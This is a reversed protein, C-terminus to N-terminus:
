LFSKRSNRPLYNTSMTEWTLYTHNFKRKNSSRRTNFFTQFIYHNCKTEIIKPAVSKDMYNILFFFVSEM